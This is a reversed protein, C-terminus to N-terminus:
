RITDNLRERHLRIAVNKNSSLELRYVPQAPSADRAQLSITRKVHTKGGHWSNGTALDRGDNRANLRQGQLSVPANQNPSFKTKHIGERGRAQGSELGIRREM